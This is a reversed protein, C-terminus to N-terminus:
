KLPVLAFCDGALGPSNNSFSFQFWNQLIQTINMCVCQQGIISTLSSSGENSLQCQPKGYIIIYRRLLLVATVWYDTLWNWQYQTQNTHYYSSYRYQSIQTKELETSNLCWCVTLASVVHEKFARIIKILDLDNRIFILSAWRQCYQFMCVYKCAQWFVYSRVCQSVPRCVFLKPVYMDTFTQTCITYSHTCSYVYNCLSGCGVPIFKFQYCQTHWHMFLSCFVCVYM